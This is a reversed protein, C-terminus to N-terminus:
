FVSQSERLLVNEAELITVRKELLQIKREMISIQKHRDDSVLQLNEIRNDNRIHNKHHVIEWSQLNRGLHKAMVLRHELVYGRRAATPFFFDTPYIYIHVYGSKQENYSGRKWNPSKDGIRGLMSQGAIKRQEPTKHACGRCRPSQPKGYRQQVWREKGCDLCAAWELKQGNVTKETDGLNPM